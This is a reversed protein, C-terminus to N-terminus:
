LLLVEYYLLRILFQILIMHDYLTYSFRLRLIAEINVEAFVSIACQLM